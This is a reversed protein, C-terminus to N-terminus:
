YQISDIPFPPSAEDTWSLTRGLFYYYKSSASLIEKYLGEAITKHLLTKLLYSPM